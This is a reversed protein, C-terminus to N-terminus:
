KAEKVRIYPDAKIAKLQAQTVNVQTEAQTATVGSRIRRGLRTSVTVQVTDEDKSTDGKADKTANGEDKSAAQTAAKIEPAQETTSAQANEKAEAGAVAADDKTGGNAQEDKAPQNKPAAAKAAGTNKAKAM